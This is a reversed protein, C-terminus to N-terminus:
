RRSRGLGLLALLMLISAWGMSGGGGGGGGSNNSSGDGGSGGGTSPTYTTKAPTLNAASDVNADLVVVGLIMVLQKDTIAVGNTVDTNTYNRLPLEDFPSGANFISVAAMADLIAMGNGTVEGFVTFGGNQPDLTATNNALNFFWQNTASNPQNGLKAMAITGRRNAYVPENIVSANQTVAVLPPKTEYKYGGGQVIFGPVSRHIISNTYAGSKVYALFNEVTKPTTKDYLNVSFDGMVTQFQVITANASQAAMFSASLTFLTAATFKSLTRSFM